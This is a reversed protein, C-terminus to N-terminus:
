RARLPDARHLRAEWTPREAAPALRARAALAEVDCPDAALTRALHASARAPDFPALAPGLRPDAPSREAWALIGLHSPRPGAAALAEREDRWADHAPVPLLLAGVAPPLGGPGAAADRGAIADGTSPHVEGRAGPGDLRGLVRAVLDPPGLGRLAAATPEAAADGRLFSV